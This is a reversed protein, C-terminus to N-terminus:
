EINKMGIKGFQPGTGFSHTGAQAVLWGMDANTTHNQWGCLDIEFTCDGPKPCLGRTISVDDIAVSANPNEILVEGEFVAQWSQSPSNINIQAYLWRNSLDDDHSWLTSNQPSLYVNIRMQQPLAHQFYWFHLCSGTTRDQIPTFLLARDNVHRNKGEALMHYSKNTQTTHNVSSALSRTWNFQGTSGYQFGIRYM